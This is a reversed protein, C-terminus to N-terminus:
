RFAAPAAAGEYCFQVLQGSSTIGPVNFFMSTTNPIMACTQTKFATLTDQVVPTDKNPISFIVFRGGRICRYRNGNGYDTICQSGVVSTVVAALLDEEEGDNIAIEEVLDGCYYATGGTYAYTELVGQQQTCNTRMNELLTARQQEKTGADSPMALIALGNSAAPLLGVYGKTRYQASNLIEEALPASAPLFDYPTSSEVTTSSPKNVKDGDPQATTTTGFLTLQPNIANLILWAALLLLLGYLANQIIRRAKDKSPLAESVMYMIGGIVITAVAVLAGVVIFIRFLANIFSVFDPSKGDQTTVGPIPELPSYDISPAEERPPTEDDEGSIRDCNTVHRPDSTPECEYGVLARENCILYTTINPTCTGAGCNDVPLRVQQTSCGAIPNAPMDSEVTIICAWKEPAVALGYRCEFMAFAEARPLLLSSLIVAFFLIKKM